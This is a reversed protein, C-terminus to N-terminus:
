GVQSEFDELWVVEEEGAGAGLFYGFSEGDVAGCVVGEVGEERVLM